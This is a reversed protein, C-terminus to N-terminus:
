ERIGKLCLGGGKFLEDGFATGGEGLLNSFLFSGEVYEGCFFKSRVINTCFGGLLGECPFLGPLDGVKLREEVLLKPVHVLLDLFELPVERLDEGSSKLFNVSFNVMVVLSGEELLCLGLLLVQELVDPLDSLSEFFASDSDSITESLIELVLPM